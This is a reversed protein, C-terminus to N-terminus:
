SGADRRVGNAGMAMQTAWLAMFRLTLTEDALAEPWAPEVDHGLGELM